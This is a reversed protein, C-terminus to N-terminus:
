KRTMGRLKILTLKRKTDLTFDSQMIWDFYSPESKLVDAVFKGKHKGFNIVERGKEDYVLRGAFDVVNGIGAYKDLFEINNELTPYRELQALLIQLTADTDAEASHANTLEKGCYFKLAAGLTRPEMQHFIRQVDIFKRNECDFTVDARLFEEVLLPVDFRNSNYGAFDCNKLFLELEAAIMKFTPADKVMENTIGHIKSVELPIIVTPNILYRKRESLGGPLLKILGIEVIRDSVVSTGTTELDFFVLARHLKLADSNINSNETMM